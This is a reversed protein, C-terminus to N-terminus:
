KEELSFSSPESPKIPTEFDFQGEIRSIFQAMKKLRRTLLEAIPFSYYSDNSKLRSFSLKSDDKMLQYNGYGWKFTGFILDIDHNRTWWNSPRLGILQDNPIFNLM